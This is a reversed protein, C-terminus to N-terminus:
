RGRKPFVPCQSQHAPEIKLIEKIINNMTIHIPRLLWLIPVGFVIQIIIFGDLLMNSCSISNDIQSFYTFIVSGMAVLFALCGNNFMISWEVHELKKSELNSTIDNDQTRQQWFGSFYTNLGVVVAMITLIFIYLFNISIPPLRMGIFGLIVISLTYGISIIDIRSLENADRLFSQTFRQCYRQVIYTIIGSLFALILIIIITIKNENIIEFNNFIEVKSAVITLVFGIAVYFALFIEAIKSKLFNSM